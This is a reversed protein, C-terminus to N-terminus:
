SIGKIVSSSFINHVFVIAKLHLLAGADIISNNDIMGIIADRLNAGAGATNNPRFINGAENEWPDATLITIDSVLFTGSINTTNNYAFCLRASTNRTGTTAFGTGNNTAVCGFVHNGPNSMSFGTGSSDNATCFQATCATATLNFGTTSTGYSLCHYAAAGAGIAFNTTNNFAVSRSVTGTGTFGTTCGSVSCSYILGSSTIGTVCNQVKCYICTNRLNNTAMGNVTANGKGDVEMCVVSQNASGGISIMTIATIAGADILPRALRDGRTTQYGELAGALTWTIPGGSGATGTTLTYTGSQVWVRIGAVSILSAALGPSALAGGINLTVGTGATLGTSRDVTVSTASGRATIEYWGATVSGTGGQVYMWNGVVDTGFNASASTITTTGATVGDTVAYQAANQQTWDTGSAGEKFGGGNTDAGGTRVEIQSAAAVAM